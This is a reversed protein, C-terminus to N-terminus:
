NVDEFTWESKEFDYWASMLGSGNTGGNKLKYSYSMDFWIDNKGPVFTGGSFKTVRIEAFLSKCFVYDILDNTKIEIRDNRPGRVVEVSEIVLTKVGTVERLKAALPEFDIEFSKTEASETGRWNTLTINHKM